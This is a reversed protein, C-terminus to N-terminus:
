VEAKAEEEDYLEDFPRTGVFKYVALNHSSACGPLVSDMDSASASVHTEVTTDIGEGSTMIQIAFLHEPYPDFNKM